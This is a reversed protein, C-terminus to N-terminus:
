FCFFFFFIQVYCVNMGTAVNEVNGSSKKKQKLLFCVLVDVIEIRMCLCILCIYWVKELYQSM